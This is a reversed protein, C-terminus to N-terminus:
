VCSISVKRKNASSPAVAAFGVVVVVVVVLAFVPTQPGTKFKQLMKSIHMGSLTTAAQTPLNKSNFNQKQKKIFEINCVSVDGGTVATAAAAGTSFTPQKKTQIKRSHQNTKNCFFFTQSITANKSHINPAINRYATLSATFTSSGTATTAASAFFSFFAFASLGDSGGM